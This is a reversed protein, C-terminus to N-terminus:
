GSAKAGDLSPLLTSKRSPIVAGWIQSCSRGSANVRCGDKDEHEEPYGMGGM